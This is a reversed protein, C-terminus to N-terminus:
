EHKVCVNGNARYDCKAVDVGLTAVQVRMSMVIGSTAFTRMMMDRRVIGTGPNSEKSHIM